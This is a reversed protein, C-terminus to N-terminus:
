NLEWRSGNWELEKGGFLRFSVLTHRFGKWVWAVKITEYNLLNQLSILLDITEVLVVLILRCIYEVQRM